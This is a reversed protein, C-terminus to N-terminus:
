GGHVLLDPWLARITEDLATAIREHALASPHADFPAAFAKTYDGKFEEMLPALDVPVVGEEACLEALRAHFNFFRIESVILPYLAVVVRPTLQKATAAWARFLKTFRVWGLSGPSFTENIYQQYSVTGSPLALDLRYDSLFWLYSSARLRRHFFLDQWIRGRSRPRQSKDLDMDNIFWQYIIVDPEIEPGWKELQALHGDIERGPEALVAGEIAPNKSRLKDLLRAPFLLEENKIGQGWTISDGQFLIRVEDAQKTGTVEPGRSGDFRNFRFDREFREVLPGLRSGFSMGDRYTLRLSLEGATFLLASSALLIALTKTIRTFARAAKEAPLLLLPLTSLTIILGLGGLQTCASRWQPSLDLRFFAQWAFNQGLAVLVLFLIGGVSCFAILPVKGRNM